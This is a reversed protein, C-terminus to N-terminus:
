SDKEIPQESSRGRSGARTRSLTPADYRGSSFAPAYLSKQEHKDRYMERDALALLTDTTDGDSPYMALGFSGQVMGEPCVSRAAISVRQRLNRVRGLATERNVNSFVLVFEDGGMRAVFDYDRCSEKLAGGIAQLLKNGTLHGLTDNVQKFGNLDCVLVALGSVMCRSIALEQDLHQYLAHANALGTLHDTSARDQAQKFKFGNELSQALKPTLAQLVRVHERTFADRERAYFTLVGILGESGFLPMAMASGFDGLINSAESTVADALPDGNILPTASSAALGSFGEGITIELPVPETLNVGWIHRAALRERRRLYVILASFPILPSLSPGLMAFIDGVKLSSGLERVLEFLVQVEMGAAKIDRHGFSVTLPVSPDKAAAVSTKGVRELALEAEWKKYHDKAFTVLRPDFARGSEKTLYEVAKELPVARRYQRDSSLADMADAVALIRAGTPIGEGSLGDPYGAGDWREHHHKVFPVVPFPFQVRDLIQAGVTPHIKMKEFEERTLRGPKSIIHDPVALKGIDHLLAAAELAMMENPPLSALEGLHMAYCQVRRLHGEMRGDKSGIAWALAEITRLYARKVDVTQMRQLELRRAHVRYCWYLFCALLLFAFTTQLSVVPRTSVYLGIAAGSVVFHPLTWLHAARIFQVLRYPGSTAALLAWPINYGLYCAFAAAIFRVPPEVSGGALFKAHFMAHAALAGTGAMFLAGLLDPLDEKKRRRTGAVILQALFVVMVTEGLRLEPLAILLFLYVVSLHGSGDPRPLRFAATLLAASVYILYKEPDQTFDVRYQLLFPVLLLSLLIAALIRSLPQTKLHSM